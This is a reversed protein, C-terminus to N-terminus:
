IKPTAKKKVRIILEIYQSDGYGITPFLQFLKTLLEQTLLDKNKSIFKMVANDEKLMKLYLDIAQYMVPPVKYFTKKHNVLVENYVSSYNGLELEIQNVKFEDERFSNLYVKGEYRSQELYSLITLLNMQCFMDEGFWLCYM